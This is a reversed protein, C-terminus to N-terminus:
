CQGKPTSDTSEDAAPPVGTKQQHSAMVTPSAKSPKMQQKSTPATPAQKSTRTPPPKEQATGSQPPPISDPKQHYSSIVVSDLEPAKKMGKGSYGGGQPTPEAIMDSTTTKSTLSIKKASRYDGQPILEVETSNGSESSSLQKTHTHTRAHTHTHHTHTHHTHGHVHCHGM